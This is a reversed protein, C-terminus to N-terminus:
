PASRGTPPEPLRALVVWQIRAEIEASDIQSRQFQVGELGLAPHNLLAGDIFRHVSKWSGRVPLNMRYRLFRGQADEQPRYEGRSVSLQEAEALNILDQVQTPLEDHALLHLEFRRLRVQADSAEDRVVPAPAAPRELWLRQAADASAAERREWVWAGAALLGSAVLLLGWGDQWRRARRIEWALRRGFQVGNLAGM